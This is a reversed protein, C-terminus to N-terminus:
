PVKGLIKDADLYKMIKDADLYKLLIGSENQGCGFIETIKM